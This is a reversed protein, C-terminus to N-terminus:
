KDYHRKPMRGKKRDHWEIAAFCLAATKVLMTRFQLPAWPMTVARGLYSVIYAVWDNATNKKDFKNGWKSQQYEREKFVEAAIGEVTVMLKSADKRSLSM